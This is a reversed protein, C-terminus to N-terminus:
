GAPALSRQIAAPADTVADAAISVIEPGYPPRGSEIGLEGRVLSQSGVCGSVLSGECTQEAGGPLRARVGRVRGGADRVLGLVTARQVNVSPWGAACAKM